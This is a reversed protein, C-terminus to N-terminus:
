LWGVLGLAEAAVEAAPRDVNDVVHDEVREHEMTTALSSAADLYWRPNRGSERALIRAHLVDLPARLRVVSVVAGPVATEIRALLARTELVRSLILRQAGTREFNSWMSALNAHVLQENWPDDAPAPFRLGIHALDVLAHRIGRDSLLGSAEAAVTTKGVGVPGTFLLVPVNM